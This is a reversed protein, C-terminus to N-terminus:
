ALSLMLIRLHMLYAHHIKNIYTYGEGGGYKKKFVNVKWKSLRFCLVRIIKRKKNPSLDPPFLNINLETLTSHDPVEGNCLKFESM